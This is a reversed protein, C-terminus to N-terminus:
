SLSISFAKMTWLLSYPIVSRRKTSCGDPSCIKCHDSLFKPAVNPCVTSSLIFNNVLRCTLLAEFARSNYLINCHRDCSSKSVVKRVFVILPQWTVKSSARIMHFIQPGKTILIFPLLMRCFVTQFNDFITSTGRSNMLACFLTVTLTSKKKMLLYTKRIVTLSFM